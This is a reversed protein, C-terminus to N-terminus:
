MSNPFIRRDLYDLKNSVEYCLCLYSFLLTNLWYITNLEVAIFKVDPFDPGALLWKLTFVVFFLGKQLKEPGRKWLSEM